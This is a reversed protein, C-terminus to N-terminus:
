RVNGEERERERWLETAEEILALVLTEEALQIQVIELSDMMPGGFTSVGM